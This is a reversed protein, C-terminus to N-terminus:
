DVKRQFVCTQLFLTYHESRMWRKKRSFRTHENQTRVFCIYNAINRQSKFMQSLENELGEPHIEHTLKNTLTTFVNAERLTSERTRYNM